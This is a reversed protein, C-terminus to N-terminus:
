IDALKMNSIFLFIIAMVMESHHSNKDRIEDNQKGTNELKEVYLYYIYIHYEFIENIESNQYNDHVYM